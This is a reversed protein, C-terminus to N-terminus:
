CLEQVQNTSTSIRWFQTTLKTISTPCSFITQHIHSFLLYTYSFHFNKKNIIYIRSMIFNKCYGFTPIKEYKTFKEYHHGINIWLLKTLADIMHGIKM